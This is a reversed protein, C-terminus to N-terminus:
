AIGLFLMLARNVALMTDDGLSGFTKGIKDRAISQPKDVMVQSTKVLGSAADPKITIRFLPIDHLDSTIPLVVVSPHSAFLDSQIVLAPRPLYRM